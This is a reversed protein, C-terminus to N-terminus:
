PKKYINGEMLSPIWWCGILIIFNSGDVYRLLMFFYDQTIVSTGYSM